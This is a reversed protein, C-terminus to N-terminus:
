IARNHDQLNLRQAMLIIGVLELQFNAIHTTISERLDTFDESFNFIPM